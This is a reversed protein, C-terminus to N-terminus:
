TPDRGIDLRYDGSADPAYGGGAEPAYGGAAPASDSGTDPVYEFLTVVKRVGSLQRVTAVVADAEQPKVLGLLYVTGRATVIKVRLPNFGPLHTIRFLAAKATTSIAFDNSRDGFFSPSRIALEDYIQRVNDLNQVTTVAQRRLEPTTVEGTLLVTGNYSTVNIHAENADALDPYASLASNAKLEIAQDNLVTGSGRRDYIVAAGGAVAGGIV